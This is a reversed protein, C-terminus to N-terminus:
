MVPLAVTGSWYEVLHAVDTEYAEATVAKQIFSAAGRRYSEMMDKRSSSHTLVVVPIDATQPNSKVTKLLQLGNARPLALDIVILDPRPKGYKVAHNQLFDQAAEAQHLVHLCTPRPAHALAKQFLIVDGPNNDVLLINLPRTRTKPIIDSDISKGIAEDIRIGEYFWTPPVNLIKGFLLLKDISIQNSGSEYKQLQQYSFGMQRALQTQNLKLLRRRERIRQGIYAYASKAYSKTAESSSHKM